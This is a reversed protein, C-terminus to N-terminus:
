PTLHKLIVDLDSGSVEDFLFDKGKDVNEPQSDSYGKADQDKQENPVLYGMVAEMLICLPQVPHVHQGFLIVAAHFGM